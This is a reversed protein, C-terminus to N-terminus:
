QEHNSTNEAIWKWWFACCTAYVFIKYLDDAVSHGNRIIAACVPLLFLVALATIFMGAPHIPLFLWRWKKFWIIKM